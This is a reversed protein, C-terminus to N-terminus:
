LMFNVKLRVIHFVKHFFFLIISWSLSWNLKSDKFKDMIKSKIDESDLPIWPRVRITFRKIQTMGHLTAATKKHLINTFVNLARDM